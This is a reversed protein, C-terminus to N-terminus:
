SVRRTQPAAIFALISLAVIPVSKVNMPLLNRLKARFSLFDYDRLEPACVVLRHERVLSNPPSQVFVM